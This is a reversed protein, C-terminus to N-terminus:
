YDDNQFLRENPEKMKVLIDHYLLVIIHSKNEIVLLNPM